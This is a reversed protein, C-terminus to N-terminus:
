LLVARKTFEAEGAWAGDLGVHFYAGDGVVLHLLQPVERAQTEFVSMGSQGGPRVPNKWFNGAVEGFEDLPSGGQSGRSVKM